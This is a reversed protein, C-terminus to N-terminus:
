EFDYHKRIAKTINWTCELGKPFKVFDGAKITVEEYDTKVTVEGELIYCYETSDYFWDFESIEKEWISWSTIGKEKIEKESLNKIEIKM